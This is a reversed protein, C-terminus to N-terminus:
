GGLQLGLHAAVPDLDGDGGGAIEDGSRPQDGLERGVLGGDVGRRLRHGSGDVVSTRMTLTTRARSSDPM